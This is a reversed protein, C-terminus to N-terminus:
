IEQNERIHSANHIINLLKLRYTYTLLQFNCQCKNTIKWSNLPSTAPQMPLDADLKLQLWQLKPTQKLLIYRKKSEKESYKWTEKGKTNWNENKIKNTQIIEEEKQPQPVPHQEKHPWQQHNQGQYM